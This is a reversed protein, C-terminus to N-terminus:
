RGNHGGGHSPEFGSKKEQGPPLSARNWGTKRGNDWGNPTRHERHQRAWRMREHDRHERWREREFRRHDRYRNQHHEWRREHRARQWKEHRERSFDHDKAFTLGASLAVGTVLVVVRKFWGTSM